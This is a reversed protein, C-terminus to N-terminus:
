RRHLPLHHPPALRIAHQLTRDSYDADNAPEHDPEKHREELDGAPHRQGLGSHHRV